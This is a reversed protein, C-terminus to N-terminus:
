KLIVSNSYKKKPMEKTPATMLFKTYRSHYRFTCVKQSVAHLHFRVQVGNSLLELVQVPKHSRMGARIETSLYCSSCKETNFNDPDSFRLNLWPLKTMNWLFFISIIEHLSLQDVPPSNLNPSFSLSKKTRPLNADTGSVGSVGLQCASPLTKRQLLPIIQEKQHNTTNGSSIPLPPLPKMELLIAQKTFHSFIYVAQIQNEEKREKRPFLLYSSPKGGESFYMFSM